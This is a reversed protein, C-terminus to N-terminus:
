RRLTPITAPDATTTDGTTHFTFERRDDKIYAGHLAAGFCGQLFGPATGTEAALHVGVTPGQRAITRLATRAADAYGYLNKGELVADAASQWLGWLSVILWRRPSHTGTRTRHTVTDALATLAGVTPGPNHALGHVTIGATELHAWRHPDAIVATDIFTVAGPDLTHAQTAVAALLGDIHHVVGLNHGILALPRPTNWVLPTSPDLSYGLVPANHTRAQTTLLDHLPTTTPM